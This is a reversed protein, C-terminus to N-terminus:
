ENDMRRKESHYGGIMESKAREDPFKEPIKDLTSFLEDLRVIYKEYNRLVNGQHCLEEAHSICICPIRWFQEFPHMKINSQSLVVEYIAYIRGLTNYKNNM